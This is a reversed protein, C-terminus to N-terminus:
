LYFTLCFINSDLNKKCNPDAVNAVVGFSRKKKRKVYMYALFHLFFRKKTYKIGIGFRFRFDNQFSTITTALM